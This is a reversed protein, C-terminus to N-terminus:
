LVVFLYICVCVCVCVCVCLSYLVGHTSWSSRVMFGASFQNINQTVGNSSVLKEREVDRYIDMWNNAEGKTALNGNM